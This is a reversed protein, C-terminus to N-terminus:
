NCSQYVSIHRHCENAQTYQIYVSLPKILLNMNECKIGIVTNM